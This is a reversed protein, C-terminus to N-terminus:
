SNGEWIRLDFLSHNAQAVWSLRKENLLGYNYYYVGECGASWCAAAQAALAAANPTPACANIGAILRAGPALYGAWSLDAAVEAPSVFYSSVFLGDSVRGLASLSAREFGARSAPRHFSAPIVELAAGYEATVGRLSEVAETVPAECAKLYPWLGDVELLLSACEGLTFAPPLMGREENLLAEALTTVRRRLGDVDV